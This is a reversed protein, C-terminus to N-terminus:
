IRASEGLQLPKLKFSPLKPLRDFWQDNTPARFKDELRNILTNRNRLSYAGCFSSALLGAILARKMECYEQATVICILDSRWM